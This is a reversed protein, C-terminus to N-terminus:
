QLTVPIVFVMLPTKFYLRYLYNLKYFPKNANRLNIDLKLMNGVVKRSVFIALPFGGNDRYIIRLKNDSPMRTLGKDRTIQAAVHANGSRIALTKYNACFVDLNEVFVCHHGFIIM